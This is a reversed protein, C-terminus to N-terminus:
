VTLDEWDEVQRPSLHIRLTTVPQLADHCRSSLPNERLDVEQLAPAEQLWEVEVETVTPFAITDPTSRRAYQMHKLVFWIFTVYATFYAM